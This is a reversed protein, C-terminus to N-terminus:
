DNLILIFINVNIATIRHCQVPKQFARNIQECEFGGGIAAEMADREETVEM